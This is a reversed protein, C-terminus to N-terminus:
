LRDVMDLVRPTVTVATAGTATVACTTGMTTAGSGGGDGGDGGGVAFIVEVGDESEDDPPPPLSLEKTITIMTATMMTNITIAPAAYMTCLFLFREDVITLATGTAAADTVVVDVVSM